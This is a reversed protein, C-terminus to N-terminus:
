RGLTFVEKGGQPSWCGFMRRDVFDSDPPTSSPRVPCPRWSPPSASWPLPQRSPAHHRRARTVPSGRRIKFAIPADSEGGMSRSTTIRGGADLSALVSVGRPRAEVQKGATARGRRSVDARLPDCYSGCRNTTRGDAVIYKYQVNPNASGCVHSYTL